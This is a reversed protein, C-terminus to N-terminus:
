GESDETRNRNRKNAPITEYGEESESNNASQREKEPLTEYNIDIERRHSLEPESNRYVAALLHPAVPATAKNKGKKNVITIKLEKEQKLWYQINSRHVNFLRSAKRIGLEKAAELIRM